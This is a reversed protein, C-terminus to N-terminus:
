YQLLLMCEIYRNFYYDNNPTKKYLQEYLSSAKEYEGNAFYQGALQSQQGLAVVSMWMMIVLALLQRMDIRKLNDSWEVILCLM